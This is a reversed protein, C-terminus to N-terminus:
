PVFPNVWRVGTFRGFGADATVVTLGHEMALAAVHADMVFNGSPQTTRIIEGLFYQHRTTPVPVWAAQRSVWDEVSEWADATSLPAKHIRPNTVIRVFALLSPWPLGVSQPHGCLQGDLWGRAVQHHATRSNTAYILVNADVLYM